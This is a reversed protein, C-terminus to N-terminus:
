TNDDKDYESGYETRMTVGEPALNDQKNDYYDVPINRQQQWPLVNSPQMDNGHHCTAINDQRQWPFVNITTVVLVM